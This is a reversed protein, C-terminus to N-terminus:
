PRARRLLLTAIGFPAVQGTWDARPRRALDVAEVDWGPLEVPVADGTPNWLRLEIADNVRRLSSVQLRDDALTLGHPAASAHGRLLAPPRRWAAARDLLADRVADLTLAFDYQQEGLCQAGPTAMDPGAGVGRTVLDRRSLWGVSRLLTIGLRDGDGSREVEFEQLGRHVFGFPGAAIAGHSPNVSVRAETRSPAEPVEALVVPRTTWAFGGDSASTAVAEPLPLVLRLRHDCARNHWTLAARLLPEGDLLRLVLRGESRVAGAPGTRDASLGAPQDLVLDITLTECATGIGSAQWHVIRARSTAPNRPPSYTYSDGADLTSEIALLGSFRRGSARDTLVLADGDVRVEYHANGIAAGATGPESASAQALEVPAMELGHLETRFAVRYLHGAVHDPFDDLPSTFAQHPAVAIVAIDIPKGDARTASLGAGAAGALFLEAEVWGSCRKPSPNFLTCRADDAFPTPRDALGARDNTMGSAQAAMGVLADLRDDLMAFRTMMEDHVADVSCGCISDHPQQQLLLDWTRELYRRPYPADAWTTAALLPEVLGILRDEARQNAQKLYRRASLVDPLVFARRNQRLEGTIVPLEGVEARVAAIYSELDNLQLRFADQAANYASVRGIMDGATVLHDGGQTLLLHGTTAAPAVSRFYATVATQWDPLNFPHQYYGQTLLVALVGSGDPARWEAESPPHDCGRWLVANDIGFGRLIQPLQAIHGFTDPVYGVRQCNGFAAASAMGRELNRVLCEGDVLFEDASVYWPGVVIRGAAMLARVRAALVPECADLLDEAAITQGDFLFSDLRGADLEAVFHSAARILRALYRERTFYWERDWHTQVVVHGTRNTM